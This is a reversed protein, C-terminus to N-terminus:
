RESNITTEPVQSDEVCQNNAIHKGPRRSKRRERKSSSEKKLVEMVGVNVNRNFVKNYSDERNRLEMKYFQMEELARHANEQAHAVKKNLREIHRIDEQRPERHEYRYEWYEITKELEAIKDGLSTEALKRASEIEELEQNCTKRVSNMEKDHAARLEALHTESRTIEKAHKQKLHAIEDQLTAKTELLEEKVDQVEQSLQQIQNQSNELSEQANQLESKHRSKLAKVTEMHETLLVDHQRRLEIKLEEIAKKKMGSMENELNTQQAELATAKEMRLKSDLEAIDKRFEGRIRALEQAADAEFRSCEERHDNEAKELAEMIMKKHEDSLLQLKEEYNSMLSERERISWEKTENLVTECKNLEESKHLFAMEIESHKREADAIFDLLRAIETKNKEGKLNEKQLEEELSRLKEQQAKSEDEMSAIQKEFSVQLLEIRKTFGKETKGVRSEAATVKKKWISEEKKFIAREKGIEEQLAQIEAEQVQFKETSVREQAELAINSNLQAQELQTKHSVKLEEIETILTKQMEEMQKEMEKRRGDSEDLAKKTAELEMNLSNTEQTHQNQMEQLNQANKHKMKLVNENLKLQEETAEARLALLENQIAESKVLACREAAILEEERQKSEHLQSYKEETMKEIRCQAHALEIKISNLAEEQKAHEQQNKEIHQKLANRESLMACHKTEWAELEVVLKKEHTEADKAMKLQLEEIKTMSKDREARAQELKSKLSEPSERSEAGKAMEMQLKEVKTMFEDREARTQEFNSKLSELERQLESEGFKELRLREIEDVFTKRDESIEDLRRKWLEVECELEFRSEKMQEDYEKKLNRLEAMMQTGNEKEQSLEEIAKGKQANASELDKEIAKLGNRLNETKSKEEQLELEIKAVNNGMEKHKEKWVLGEHEMAIQNSKLAALNREHEEKEVLLEADKEELQTKLESMQGVLKQREGEYKERITKVSNHNKEKAELQEKLMAERQAAKQMVQAIEADHHEAMAKVLAENDENKTNLHFIVKTLQAVKKGLKGSSMGEM